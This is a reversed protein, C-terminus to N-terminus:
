SSSIIPSTRARDTCSKRWGAMVFTKQVFTLDAAPKALTGGCRAGRFTPLCRLISLFYYASTFLNVTPHESGVNPDESTNTTM